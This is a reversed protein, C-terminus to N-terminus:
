PKTILLRMFRNAVQSMPQTDRVTVTGPATGPPYTQLDTWPLTLDSTGQVVYKVDTATGNFSLSLYDLGGVTQKNVQPLGASGPAYNTTPNLGWAYKQLNSFGDNALIAAPLASPGTLGQSSAWSDFTQGTITVTIRATTAVASDSAWFQLNYTGPMMPTVTTALSNPSAINMAGPGSLLSWNYTLSPTPKSDDLVTASLNLPQGTAGAVAGPMTIVPGVNAPVAAYLDQIEYFTLARNYIRVGDMTGNLGLPDASDLAGLHLNGTTNRPVTTPTITIFKDPVGNVWLQFNNTTLNGNYVMVVHYWQGPVFLTNSTLTAGGAIYAYLVCNSGTNGRLQINYSEKNFAGLRKALLGAYNPTVPLSTAKFWFAISMQKLGDLLNTASDPVDVRQGAGNFSLGGGIQGAATWVPVPNAVPNATLTGNNAPSVGSVDHAITGSTEDLALRLVLSDNPGTIPSSLVRVTLDRFSVATGDSATLRLTYDGL